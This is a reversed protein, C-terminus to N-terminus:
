NSGTGRFVAMLATFVIAIGVPIFVVWKVLQGIMDNKFYVFNFTAVKAVADFWTMNPVWGVTKGFVVVDSTIEMAIVTELTTQAAGSGYFVQEVLSGFFGCIIWTSFFFVIWKIPM